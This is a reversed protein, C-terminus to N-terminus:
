LMGSPGITINSNNNIKFQTGPTAQIGIMTINKYKSLDNMNTIEYLQKSM